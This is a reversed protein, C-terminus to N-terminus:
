VDFSRICSCVCFVEAFYGYFAAKFLSVLCCNIFTVLRSAAVLKVSLSVETRHEINITCADDPHLYKSGSTKQRVTAASSTNLEAMVWPGSDGNIYVVRVSGRVIDGCAVRRSVTVSTQPSKVTINFDHCLFGDYTLM